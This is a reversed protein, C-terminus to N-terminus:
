AEEVKCEIAAPPFVAFINSPPSELMSSTRRQNDLDKKHKKIITECFTETDACTQAEDFKILV